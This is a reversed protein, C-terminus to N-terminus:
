HQFLVLIPSVILWWVDVRLIIITSICTIYHSYLLTWGHKLHAFCSSTCVSLTDFMSVATAMVLLSAKRLSRDTRCCFSFLTHHCIFYRYGYWMPIDIYHKSPLRGLLYNPYSKWSSLRKTTKQGVYSETCWHLMRCKDYKQYQAPLNPYNSNM